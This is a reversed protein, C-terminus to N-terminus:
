VRPPQFLRDLYSKGHLNKHFFIPQREELTPLFSYKFTSTIIASSFGLTTCHHHHETDQDEESDHQHHQQQHADDIHSTSDEIHNEIADLVIIDAHAQVPPVLLVISLIIVFM